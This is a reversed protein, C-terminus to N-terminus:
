KNRDYHAAKINSFLNISQNISFYLQGHTFPALMRDTTLPMCVTLPPSTPNSCGSDQLAMIKRALALNKPCFGAALFSFYFIKKKILHFFSNMGDLLILARFGHNKSIINNTPTLRAFCNQKPHQWFIKGAFIVRGGPFFQGTCRHKNHTINFTDLALSSNKFRTNATANMSLEWLESSTGANARSKKTCTFSWHEAIM